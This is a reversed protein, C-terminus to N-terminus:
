SLHIQPSSLMAQSIISSIMTDEGPESAPADGENRSRSIQRCSTSRPPSPTEDPTLLIIEREKDKSLGSPESPILVSSALRSHNQPMHDSTAMSRQSTPENAASSKNPRQRQNSLLRVISSGSSLTDVASTKI